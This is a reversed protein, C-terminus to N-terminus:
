LYDHVDEARLRRDIALLQRLIAIHGQGGLVLVRQGPAAHHQVNAYMRFNRHWWSAAADAGEFGEGAGVPNTALYLDMNLRDREADNSRLLLDRLSLTARAQEEERTVTEIIQNFAQMEPPNHQQAYDFLADAQWQVDRNDFSHVRELGALQAVRFGLQYIENAPLEFSGALYDRFRQNVTEENEPAYELLVHTPKFEALRQALQQLYQQSDASMVDFDESKVVDLGADEFHFTGMLLVRGPEAAQLPSTALTLALLGVLLSAQRLLPNRVRALFLVRAARRTKKM